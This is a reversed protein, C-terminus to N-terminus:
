TRRACIRVGMGVCLCVCMGVGVCTCVRGHVRARVPRPQQARVFTTGKRTPGNITRTTLMRTYRSYLKAFDNMMQYVNHGRKFVCHPRVM